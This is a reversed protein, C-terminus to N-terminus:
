PPSFVVQLDVKIPTGSNNWSGYRQYGGTQNSAVRFAMENGSGFNTKARELVIIMYKTDKKIVFGDTFTTGPYTNGFPMVISSSGASHTIEWLKKATTDENDAKAAGVGPCGNLNLGAKALTGGTPTVECLWIEINITPTQQFASGVSKDTNLYLNLGDFFTYLQFGTLIGDRPSVYPQHYMGGMGGTSTNGYGSNVSSANSWMTYGVGSGCIVDAVPKTSSITRQALTPTKWSVGASSSYLNVTQLAVTFEITSSPLSKWSINNIENGSMDLDDNMYIKNTVIDSNYMLTSRGRSTGKYNQTREQVNIGNSNPFFNPFTHFGSMGFEGWVLTNGTGKNYGRPTNDPLPSGSIDCWWGYDNNNQYIRLEIDKTASTNNPGIQMQLVGGDYTSGYAMRFAKIQRNSTSYRVNSVIDLTLGYSFHHNARLRITQHCGSMNNIFEFEADARQKQSQNFGGINAGGGGNNALPFAWPGVYAISIWDNPSIGATDFKYLQFGDAVLTKYNDAVGRTTITTDTPFVAQSTAGSQFNLIDTTITGDVNINSIDVTGTIGNNIEMPANIIVKDTASDVHLAPNKPNNYIHYSPTNIYTSVNNRTSTSGNDNLSIIWDSPWSSDSKKCGMKIATTASKSSSDGVYFNFQTFQEKGSYIGFSQAGELSTFGGTTTSWTSTGALAGTGGAPNEDYPILDIKPWTYYNRDNTEGSNFIKLGGGTGKKTHADIVVGGDKSQLIINNSGDIAVNDKVDDYLLTNEADRSIYVYSPDTAYNRMLINGSLEIHSASVDIMNINGWFTGDKRLILPTDIIMGKDGGFYTQAMFHENFTSWASNDNNPMGPTTKMINLSLDTLGTGGSSTIFWTTGIDAPFGTTIAPNLDPHLQWDANYRGLANLQSMNNKYLRVTAIDLNTTVTSDVGILLEITGAGGMGQSNFVTILKVIGTTELENGANSLVKISGQCKQPRPEVSKNTWSFYVSAIFNLTQYATPANGGTKITFYGSACGQGLSGLDIYGISFYNISPATITVNTDRMYQMMNSDEIYVSSADIRVASINTSRSTPAIFNQAILTNTEVTTASLDIVQTHGTISTDKLTTDGNVTLYDSTTLNKFSVDGTIMTDLTSAKCAKNGLPNYSIDLIVKTVPLNAVPTYTLQWWGLNSPNFKRKNQYVRIVLRTPNNTFRRFISLNAGAYFSSGSCDIKIRTILSSSGSYWNNSLVDIFNGNSYSTGARFTISNRIGSTDDDLVFLGTAFEGAMAPDIKAITHWAGNPYQQGSIDDSFDRYDVFRTDGISDIVGDVELDGGVWTNGTTTIATASVDTLTSKGVVNLTQNLKVDNGEADDFTTKGDVVLNGSLSLNIASIDTLTTKGNVDLFGDVTINSASVDRLRTHGFVDLTGSIDTNGSVDLNDNLTTKGTVGLTGLIDINGSIDVNGSVDLNNNVTVNNTSVDTLTTKGIVDLTGSIDVNGTVSLTGNLLSNGSVDLEYFVNNLSPDQTHDVNSNDIIPQTPYGIFMNKRVYNYQSRIADGDNLDLINASGDVLVMRDINGISGLAGSLDSVQVQGSVDLNTIGTKGNYVYCSIRPAYLPNQINTSLKETANINLGSLVTNEQYFLLYGSGADMLWFEPSTNLPRSVWTQNSPGSSATQNRYVKPLYGGEIDDYKFPICHELVSNKNITPQGSVDTFSGWVRNGSFSEVPVLHLKKYFKLNSDPYIEAFTKGNNPDNADAQNFFTSEQVLNINYNSSSDIWNLSSDLDNILIPPIDPIEEIMVDKSFINPVHNFNGAQFGSFNTTAVGMFNKFLLKTRSDTTLLTPNSM